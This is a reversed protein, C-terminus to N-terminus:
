QVVRQDIPWEVFCRDSPGEEREGAQGGGRRAEEVILIIGAESFRTDGRCLM